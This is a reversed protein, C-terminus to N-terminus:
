ESAKLTATIKDFPTFDGFCTLAVVRENIETIVSNSRGMSEMEIRAATQGSQLMIEGESVITTLPDSKWQQILDAARTGAPRINLDCKTDGPEFMEGGVYKDVPYSQLIAYQGEVIGTAVWSEPIYVSIGVASDQYEKYGVPPEFAPTPTPAHVEATPSPSVPSPQEPTPTLPVPGPQEITPTPPILGPQELTPTAEVAPGCSQLLLVALLLGYRFHKMGIVM